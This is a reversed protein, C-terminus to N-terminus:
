DEIEPNAVIIAEAVEWVYPLHNKVQEARQQLDSFSTIGLDGLLRRYGPSFRDQLEAPADHYLVKQCRSYTAVIWFIAERHDGHEILDRSGDIAIPRAIDSLDSAFFFPTKVVTKTVDFVETLAALHQELQGRSMQACGLMELLTTYFQQYGYEALLERAAVYRQRVTPNKLGAVLLVHTMVGTSFLWPTVQDHFPVSENLGQLMELIKNRAHECRKYVWRREAYGKAVAAQLQALQGSPDLIINPIRFTGALHYDGLILEPSQLQAKSLYTVELMVDRYSFKGLKNPPEPDTLVVWVDVDSSVPLVADDPRWNISGAYCAGYFGPIKTAEEMVWQRAVAKADKVRMM